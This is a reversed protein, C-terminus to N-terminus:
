QKVSAALRRLTVTEHISPWLRFINNSVACCAAHLSARKCWKRQGGLEVHCRLIAWISSECLTVADRNLFVSCLSDVVKIALLLGTQLKDQLSLTGWGELTSVAFVVRFKPGPLSPDPGQMRPVGVFVYLFTVIGLNRNGLSVFLISNLIPM